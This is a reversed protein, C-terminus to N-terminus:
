YDNLPMGIKKDLFKDVLKAIAQKFKEKTSCNEDVYDYHTIIQNCCVQLDDRVEDYENLIDLIHNILYLDNKSLAMTLKENVFDTLSKM